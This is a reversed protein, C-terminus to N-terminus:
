SAFWTPRFIAVVLSLISVLGFVALGFQWTRYSRWRAVRNAPRVGVDPALVYQVRHVPDLGYRREFAELWARETAEHWRHRAMLQMSLGSSLAALLAALIRALSSSGSGLAITPLFAQATLGLAPVQWMLMDHQLRRQAMAQYVLAPDGEQAPEAKGRRRRVFV